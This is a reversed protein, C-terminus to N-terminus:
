PVHGSREALEDIIKLFHTLTRQSRLSRMWLHAGLDSLLSMLSGESFM